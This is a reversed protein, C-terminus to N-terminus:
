KKYILTWNLNVKMQKRNYPNERKNLHVVDM